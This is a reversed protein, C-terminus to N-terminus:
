WRGATERGVLEKGVRREESRDAVAHGDGVEGAEPGLDGAFVALLAEVEEGAGGPPLLQVFDVGLVGDVGAVARVAVPHRVGVEELGGPRGWGGRPRGWGAVVVFPSVMACWAPGASRVGRCLSSRRMPTCGERTCRTWPMACRSAHSTRRVRVLIKPNPPHSTRVRSSAGRVSCCTLFLRPS